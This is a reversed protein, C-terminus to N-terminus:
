RLKSQEKSVLLDNQFSASIRSGDANEWVFTATTASRKIELGRGLIAEVAAISMGPTLRQYDAQNVHSVCQIEIQDHPQKQNLGSMAKRYGHASGSGFVTGVTFVLALIRLNPNASNKTM